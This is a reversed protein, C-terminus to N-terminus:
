VYYFCLCVNVQQSDNLDPYAIGFYDIWQQAERTWKLAILSKIVGIYAQTQGPWNKIVHLYDRVAQYLDGM